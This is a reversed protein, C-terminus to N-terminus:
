FRQIKFKSGPVYFAKVLSIFEPEEFVVDMPVFIIFDDLMGGSEGSTYIWKPDNESRQRIFKPKLEANQFIYFPPKQITDDIYIRRLINDYRDNLLQELYCLQYNIRLQYDKATRYRLFSNYLSAVPTILAGIWAQLRDDRLPAPVLWKVLRTYNIDYISAM